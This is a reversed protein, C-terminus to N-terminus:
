VQWESVWESLKLKFQLTYHLTNSDEKNVSGFLFEKGFSLDSYVIGTVWQSM